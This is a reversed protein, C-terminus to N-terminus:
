DRESGVDQAALAEQSIKVTELALVKKGLLISWM